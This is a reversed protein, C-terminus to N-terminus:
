KRDGKLHPLKSLLDRIQLGTTGELVPPLQAVIDLIDKTIKSMGAGDAGGNSILTIKEIKQLPEAVARAIEPLKEIFMQAIAAENYARWAEAKKMMGEAEALLKAKAVEAEAIGQARKVEAEALGKAKVADAEALGVARTAMAKAEAEAEIQYRTADALTAIKKKEAEAPASVTAELEKQKRLIEQEQVKVQEQKEIAQVKVEEVKVNQETKFKQLDYALDAQAKKENIQAQYEARKMEFDRQAEAIQTEAQFKAQQAQQQAKAQEITAERERYAQAIIADRKVEALRPKGLADLYGQNDRVEKITLSVVELGMHAFDSSSVEQVKQSFSERDRYIQEVTLTGIIARIHGELTELAIRQMEAPSKSLFQEAATAIADESGQVKIQAVGDIVIPIGNVTYVEPTKFDITMIELSLVDAKEIIPWVFARGGKIIRFGRYFIRGTKPDQIRRQRGSVILAENPGVKVIRSAWIAFFIFVIVLLGVVVGIVWGWDSSGAAALLALTRM